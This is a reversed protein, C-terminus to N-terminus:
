RLGHEGRRFRVSMAALRPIIRPLRITERAVSGCGFYAVSGGDGHAKGLIVFILEGAAPQTSRGSSPRRAGGPAIEQWVTSFPPRTESPRVGKEFPPLGRIYLQFDTLGGPRPLGRPSLSTGSPRFFVRPSARGGLRREVTGRVRTIRHGAERPHRGPTCASAEAPRGRAICRMKLVRLISRVGSDSPSESGAFARACPTGPTRATRFSAGHRREDAPPVPALPLRVGSRRCAM